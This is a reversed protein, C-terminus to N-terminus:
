YMKVLEEAEKVSKLPKLLEMAAENAGGHLDGKLTGIATTIGSYFDSRTSITVRAAFTSANLDHEAYLILSVDFTKVLVPDPIKGDYHLLKIFNSAVSDNIGTYTNIRLSKNSKHFHYWYLLSPGFISILRLSISIQCNSPGEPELTGLASAVTRMVDMPEATSPINELINQLPKPIERLKSITNLLNDYEEKNPLREHLLLFIVDEFTSKEALEVINYGRYNLGVGIGVTSIKTDGVVMGDLGKKAIM